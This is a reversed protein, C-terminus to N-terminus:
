RMLNEVNKILINYLILFCEVINNYLEKFIYLKNINKRIFHKVNKFFINNNNIISYQSLITNHYIYIYFVYKM